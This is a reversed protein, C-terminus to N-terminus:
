GTGFGWRLAALTADVEADETARRACRQKMEEVKLKESIV